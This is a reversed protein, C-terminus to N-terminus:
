WLKSAAHIARINEQPQHVRIYDAGNQALYASIIQTEIEREGAPKDTFLTMFSKESHGAYLEVGLKKFESFRKVIKLSQEATKGFGIGPDFIIKDKNINQSELHAIKEEAWKYIESVVDCYPSMIREKSAPIGLNHMFIIKCNHEKLLPFFREDELGSVDNIYSVGYKLAKKATEFNRSDISIEATLNSKSIEKLAPELRQWEEEPSIIKANPRTSEAGIDIIDAGDNILKECQSIANEPSLFKGGDSFSDPTINLIGVIKPSNPM